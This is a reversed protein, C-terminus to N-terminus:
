EQRLAKLPDLRSARRAPVYSAVIAIVTLLGAVGALTIPDFPRIGVLLTAFLQSAGLTLVLGIILGVAILRVAQRLVLRTIDAPAAGLALRAGMERTRRSVSYAMSAYLGISALVLALAGFVSLVSAAMNQQISAAKVSDSLTMVSFLPLTPDARRVIDRLRDAFGEPASQTKVHLVVDPRYNWTTSLYVFPSPPENIRRYKSNAVVGAVPLWKEGFRVRRSIPNQGPWYRDVFARNVIIVEPDDPRDSSTFERGSLVPIRMLRFYDAGVWALYTDAADDKPAVYGEPEITMSSSGTSIGLPVRRAMTASEVGPTARIEDLVRTLLEAGRAPDYGASFLDVSALLIGDTKFGVDLLRANGLSRLFLGASALLLLAFAMQSVVLSHRLWSRRGGALRGPDAKLNTVLDTRGAQLAPALGFVVATILAITATFALVSWSMSTTALGIPMNTPPVLQTLLGGTWVQIVAAAIAAFFVLVMSETLLQRILRGRGCGLSLRLAFERSRASARSLLLNSINACAILLVITVTGMLVM